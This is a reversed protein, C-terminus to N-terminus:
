ATIRTVHFFFIKHQFNRDWWDELSVNSGNAPDYVRGHALAILHSGRRYQGAPTRRHVRMVGFACASPIFRLRNEHLEMKFGKREFMSMIDFMSSSDGRGRKHARHVAIIEHPESHTLMAVCTPACSTATPQKRPTIQQTMTEM